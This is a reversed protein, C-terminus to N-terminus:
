GFMERVLKREAARLHYQYTPASIGLAEALTAATSLRPWEYFGALYATHLAEYQKDTWQERLAMQFTAPSDNGKTLMRRSRLETAPYDAAIADVFSRVRVREPVEVTLTTAAGTSVLERLTADSAYLTEFLAERPLRLEFLQRDEDESLVCADIAVDRAVEIVREPDADTVLFALIGNNEQPVVGTVTVECGIRRALRAVSLRDGDLAIELEAKRGTLMAAARATTSIAYGITEGLEALLASDGNVFANPTTAHIVFLAEVRDNAVSPLVALSRFGYALADGRHNGWAPDDLVDGVTQMQKSDIADELLTSFPESGAVERLREVYASDAGHVADQSPKFGREFQDAELYWVVAYNESEALQKTVAELADSRTPARILSRVVGRITTNVRDLKTLKANQSALREDRKRLETEAEVRELLEEVTAVLLNVLEVDVDNPALSGPHGTVLVGHRGMPAAIVREVGDVVGGDPALEVVRVEGSVFAEWVGGEGIGVGIPKDGFGTGAEGIRRLLTKSEDFVFLETRADGLVEDCAEAAAALIADRDPARMMERTREHLTALLREYRHRETVDRLVGVSGFETGEAVLPTRHNEVRIVEGTPKTMEFEVIQNSTAAFAEDGGDTPDDNAVFLGASSGLVDSRRLGTLQEFAPNIATFRGEVDLAYVADAVTELMRGYQKIEAERARKETIDTFYISLGTDSPYANVDFWSEFQESYTEFSVARQTRMATELNTRFEDDNDTLGWLEHGLIEVADHNLGSEATGNVYTVEWDTNVAIVAEDIRELVESLANRLEYREITAGLITAINELFLVDDDSFHTTEDAYVGLVGWSRTDGAIPTCMGSRLAISSFACADDYEEAAEFNDVVLSHGEHYTATVHSEDCDAVFEHKPTTSSDASARVVFGDRDDLRELVVVSTADLVDNVRTTVLDFVDAVNVDALARTGIESVVRQQELRARYSLEVEHDRIATRIRFGLWHASDTERDRILYDTAGADVAVTADEETQAVVIVPLGLDRERFERLFSIGDGTTLPIDLIVCHIVSSASRLEAHAAGTERVHRVTADSGQSLSSEVTEVFRDDDSM